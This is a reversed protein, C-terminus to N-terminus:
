MFKIRFHVHPQNKGHEQGNRRPGKNGAIDRGHRRRRFRDDHRPTTFDKRCLGRGVRIEHKRLKGAPSEATLEALGHVIETIHTLQDNMKEQKETLMQLEADEQALSLAILMWHLLM